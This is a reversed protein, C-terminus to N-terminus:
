TLCVWMKERELRELVHTDREGGRRLLRSREAQKMKKFCGNNQKKFETYTHTPTHGKRCLALAKESSNRGERKERREREETAAFLSNWL